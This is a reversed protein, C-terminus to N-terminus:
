AVDCPYITRKWAALAPDVEFFVVPSAPSSEAVTRGFPDVVCGRAEYEVGDVGVGGRNSSAVYCGSVVAAMQLAVDFFHAAAPPMARPVVVVDARDRGDQRAHESFMVEPRGRAIEATLQRWASTGARLEPDTECSAFRSSTM